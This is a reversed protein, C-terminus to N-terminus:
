LVASLMDTCVTECRILDFDVVEWFGFFLPVIYLCSVGPGLMIVIPFTLHRGPHSVGIM